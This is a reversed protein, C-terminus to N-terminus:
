NSRRLRHQHMHHPHVQSRFRSPRGHRHEPPVVALRDDLVQADTSIVFGDQSRQRGRILRADVSGEAPRIRESDEQGRM